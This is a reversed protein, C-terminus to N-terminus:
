TVGPKKRRETHLQAQLHKVHLQTLLKVERLVLLLASLDGLLQRVEDDVALSYFERTSLKKKRSIKKNRTVCKLRENERIRGSACPSLNETLSRREDSMSDGAATIM